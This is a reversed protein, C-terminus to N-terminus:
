CLPRSGHPRDSRSAFAEGSLVSHASLRCCTVESLPPQLERTSTLAGLQRLLTTTTTTGAVEYSKSRRSWSSVHAAVRTSNGRSARLNAPACPADDNACHWICCNLGRSCRLSWDLSSPCPDVRSYRCGRVRSGLGGRDPPEQRTALRGGGARLVSLCRRPDAGLAVSSGGSLPSRVRISCGLLCLALPVMLTWPVVISGLLALRQLQRDGAPSGQRSALDLFPCCEGHGGGASGAPSDAFGCSRLTRDQGVGNALTRTSGTPQEACSANDSLWRHLGM